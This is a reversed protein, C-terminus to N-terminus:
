MRARVLIEQRLDPREPDLGELLVDAPCKGKAVLDALRELHAREDRGNRNLRARRELGSMAVDVVQQALDALPKGRFSAQLARAPIERRLAVLEEHTFSASLEDAADLARRDYFIGTWLAPLACALSASQSDAGRV